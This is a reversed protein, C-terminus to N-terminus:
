LGKFATIREYADDGDKEQGLGMYERNASIYITNSFEVTQISHWKKTRMM